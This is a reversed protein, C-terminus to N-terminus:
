ITIDTIADPDDDSRQQPKTKDLGLCLGASLMHLELLSKAVGYREITKDISEKVEHRVVAEVYPAELASVLSAARDDDAAFDFPNDLAITSM